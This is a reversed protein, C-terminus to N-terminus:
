RKLIVELRDGKKELRFTEIAEKAPGANVAGSATDFQSGHRPTALEGVDAGVYM